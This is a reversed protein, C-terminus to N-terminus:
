FFHARLTPRRLTPPGFPQAGFPPAGFPPPGLIERKKERERSWKARKTDIQTDARPIKTTNSAGSGKFTFTQLERTTTHFGPPKLAAPAECSLGLVGFTCM